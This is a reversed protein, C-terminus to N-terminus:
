NETHFIVNKQLIHQFYNTSGLKDFKLSKFVHGHWMQYMWTTKKIWHWCTECVKLM